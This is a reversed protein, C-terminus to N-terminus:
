DDSFLIACLLTAGALFLQKRARALYLPYKWVFAALVPLAFLSYSLVFRVIAGAIHKSLAVPNYPANDNKRILLLTTSQVLAHLCSCLSSRYSV